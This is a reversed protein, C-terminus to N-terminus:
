AGSLKKSIFALPQETGDALTQFLHAGIGYDSADTQLSIPLNYDIFYLKPCNGIATQIRLFSDSTEQTWKLRARKNYNSLLNHLPQVMM